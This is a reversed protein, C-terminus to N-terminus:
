SLIEKIKNGLEMLSFPKQLYNVSKYKIGYRLIVDDAYGSIYLAKLHPEIERLKTVLERGNMSPMVIDTVVLDIIEESNFIDLADKGCSAAMVEYEMSELLAKTSMRVEENDEVLLLKGRGKVDVEDPSNGKLIETSEEKTSPLYTRFTTGKGEESEMCIFGGCSEVIGFVTSLGLGTGSKTDKTTFFPEFVKERNEEPIGTGTDAVEIKVYSGEKANSCSEDKGEGVRVNATRIDLRGGLPMADRANVLLNVLVQEVNSPDAKINWLGEELHFHMEIDEGVIRAFMEKLSELCDNMKIIEPVDSRQRSFSLLQDILRSAKKSTEIVGDMKEELGNGSGEKGCHTLKALECFSTIAGLYNNIDHAIGGTLRGMAEMKQSQILEKELIKERSIDMLTGMIAPKGKYIGRSGLVKIVLENGEKTFVRIEYQIFRAEEKLRKEINMTVMGRDEPHTVDLPGMRDVIEDSSYGLVECLRDNVFRFLGDQIIYVGAVSQEVIGRYKEESDRLTDEIIKADTRDLLLGDVHTLRGREDYAMHRRDALWRVDGSKKIIRYEIRMPGTKKRVGDRIIKKVRELDEPYIIEKWIMSRRIFESAGYGTIEEVKEGAFSMSWDPLGRYVVGPLNNLLSVLREPSESISHIFEKM